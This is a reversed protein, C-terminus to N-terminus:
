ARMPCADCGVMPEWRSWHVGVETLVGTLDPLTDNVLLCLNDDGLKDQLLRLATRAAWNATAEIDVASAEVTPVGCGTEVFEGEEGAPIFPYDVQGDTAAYGLEHCVVCADRGPRVIRIRGIAARRHSTVYLAPRGARLCLENLLLSFAPNATADIVVDAEQIWGLLVAPDWSREEVRVACDPAHRLVEIMTMLTKLEGVGGLGAVHRVSNGPRLRASDSLRLKPLGAKALLLAVASGVAGVGFILAERGELARAIHGTRRLLSDRDIGASEYARIPVDDLVGQRRWGKQSGSLEFGLFLWHEMGDAGPYGLALV